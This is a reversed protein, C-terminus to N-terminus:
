YITDGTNGHWSPSMKHVALCSNKLNGCKESKTCLHKESMDMDRWPLRTGGDGSTISDQQMALGAKGFYPQDHVPLHGRGEEMFAFVLGFYFRDLFKLTQPSTINLMVVRSSHTNTASRMGDKRGADPLQGKSYYQEFFWKNSANRYHERPIVHTASTSPYEWFELFVERHFSVASNFDNEYISQMIWIEAQDSWPSLGRM